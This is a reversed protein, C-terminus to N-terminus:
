RPSSLDSWILVNQLTQYGLKEVHYGRGNITGLTTARLDPPWPLHRHGLSETLRRRLVPKAVEISQKSTLHQLRGAVMQVHTELIDEVANQQLAPRIPAEIELRRLIDQASAVKALCVAFAMLYVTHSFARM